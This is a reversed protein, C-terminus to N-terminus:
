HTTKSKSSAVLVGRSPPMLPEPDKPKEPYPVGKEAFKKRWHTEIEARARKIDAMYLYPDFGCMDCHMAARVRGRYMAEFLTWLPIFSVIGRWGFWNWTLMTIFAATLAIQAYHKPTPRPKFGLKRPSGCSPCIFSWSNAERNKWFIKAKKFERLDIEDM